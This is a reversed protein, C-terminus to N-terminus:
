TSGRVVLETSIRTVSAGRDYRAAGGRTAIRDALLRLAVEGLQEKFVRVTTLPPHSFAAAEVDDFGAVALDHPVSLGRERAGDMLGFAVSDNACFVATPREGTPVDLLRSALEAGSKRDLLGDGVVVHHEAPAHGADRLAHVFGNCRATPSPHDRDAGLYAARTHGRDLFHQAVAAAGGDNDIAVALANGRAFDALVYPIELRDLADLFTPAVSGAVVVGDVSHDRLFRPADRVPDYQAPVTALLVYNERRRAEFEVGLFVRTYFSESRRFHDERLVFGVNGTLGGALGRANHSPTYGLRHAAARVRERTEEAVPGKGNMVLSVTSISVGAEAAVVSITTRGSLLPTTSASKISASRYICCPSSM